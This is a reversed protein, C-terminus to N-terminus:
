TFGGLEDRASEIASLIRQEAVTGDPSIIEVDIKLERDKLWGEIASKVVAESFMADIIIDSELCGYDSEIDDDEETEAKSIVDWIWNM